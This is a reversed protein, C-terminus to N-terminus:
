LDDPPKMESLWEDLWRMVDPRNSPRIPVARRSAPQTAHAPPLFLPSEQAVGTGDSCEVTRPMSRNPSSPLLDGSKAFFLDRAALEGESGGAEGANLFNVIRLADLPVVFGDPLVDYFLNPFVPVQAAETLLGTANHFQPDNLENVIILVDQPEVSGNANVDVGNLPNQWNAPGNLLLRAAGQELVRFFVGAQVLVGALTWGGDFNVTDDLNSLVTLENADPTNLVEDRNL